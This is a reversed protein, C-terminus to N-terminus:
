SKQLRVSLWSKWDAHANLSEFVQLNLVSLGTNELFELITKENFPQFFRGDDAFFPKDGHKVVIDIIGGTKLLRASEHLAQRVGFQADSFAPLHHLTAHHLILHISDDPLPIHCMNASIFNHRKSTVDDSCSVNDVAWCKVRPFNSLYAAKLGQGAGIDLASIEGDVFRESVQEYLSNLRRKEVPLLETRQRMNTSAIDQYAAATMAAIKESLAVMEEISLNENTVRSLVEGELSKSLSM